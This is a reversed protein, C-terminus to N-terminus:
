FDYHFITKDTFFNKLCLNASFPMIKIEDKIYFLFINCLQM